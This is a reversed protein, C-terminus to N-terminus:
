LAHSELKLILFLLRCASFFLMLTFNSFQTIQSMLSLSHNIFFPLLQNVRLLYVCLLFVIDFIKFIFVKIQILFQKSLININILLCCSAFLSFIIQTNKVRFELFRFIIDTLNNMFLILSFVSQGLIILFHDRLFIFNFFYLPLNISQFFFFLLM